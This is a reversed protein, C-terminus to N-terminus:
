ADNNGGPSNPTTAIAAADPVQRVQRAAAPPPAAPLFFSEDLAQKLRGDGGAFFQDLGALRASAEETALAARIRRLVDRVTAVRRIGLQKALEPAAITPQRLVWQIAAFWIPLPLGSGSMVTAARLGHQKRCRSCEWRRCSPLFCGAAGGCAPCRFDKHRLRAELYAACAAEDPCPLPDEDPQAADRERRRSQLEELWALARYFSRTGALGFREAKGVADSLLVALAADVTPEANDSFSLLPQLQAGRRELSATAASWLEMRAAQRALDRVVLRELEGVPALQETLRALLAPFLTSSAIIPPPNLGDFPRNGPSLVNSAM